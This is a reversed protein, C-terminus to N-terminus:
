GGSRDVMVYTAVYRNGDEGTYEIEVVDEAVTVETDILIQDEGREVYTGDDIPLAHEDCPICSLLLALAVLRHRKM